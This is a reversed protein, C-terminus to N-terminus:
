QECRSCKNGEIRVTKIKNNRKKNNAFGLGSEGEGEREKEAVSEEEDKFVMLFFSFKKEKWDNWKGDFRISLANTIPENM